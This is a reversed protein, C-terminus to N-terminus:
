TNVHIMGGEHLTEYTNTYKSFSKTFVKNETLLKSLWLPYNFLSKIEMVILNKSQPLTFFETEKDLTKLHAYEIHDDFTVRIGTKPDLLALRKYRIFTFPVVEYRDLYFKVEKYIQNQTYDDFELPIKKNLFNTAKERNVLLRRKNGQGNLKKKLEIFVPTDDKLPYEYFRVRLKEKYSLRTQTQRIVEFNTTDYYITYVPYLSGNPSYLDYIFGADLFGKVLAKEQAKNLVYKKEYRLFVTEM